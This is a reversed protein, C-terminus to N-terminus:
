HSSNLRTSKRDLFLSEINDSESHLIRILKEFEDSKQDSEDDAEIDPNNRAELIEPLNILNEDANNLMFSLKLELQSRHLDLADSILADLQGISQSPATNESLGNKTTTHIQTNM